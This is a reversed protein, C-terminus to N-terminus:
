KRRPRVERHQEASKYMLETLECVKLGILDTRIQPVRGLAAWVFHQQSNAFGPWNEDLANQRTEFQDLLFTTDADIGEINTFLAFPELRLGGKSGMIRHGTGGDMHAAWAEEFFLTLGGKFRVFATALEEVDYGSAKRRREDMDLEQYTSATVTEIEPNGLLHMMLGLHYVGMDPLAGGGAHRKQVFIPTAYGDVYPRGRRRYHSAKAYYIHGLLGADIIRKAARAEKSFITGLQMALIRDSREAARLMKRAEAASNAMPKECYVHKGAKLAACTVPCHL